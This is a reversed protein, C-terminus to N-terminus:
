VVEERRRKKGSSDEGIKKGRGRLTIFEEREIEREIEREAEGEAEREAERENDRESQREKERGEGREVCKGGKTKIMEIM